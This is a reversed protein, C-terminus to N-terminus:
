HFPKGYSKEGAKVPIKLLNEKPPLPCEYGSTYACYPNYAKNFDIVLKNNIIDNKVFDLYRGGGYSTFGSTADGFPVFLYDKFNEKQMLEESQYIFLHQPSKNLYFTLLGYKYYKQKVGTSTYMYFGKNDIIRKFSATVKYKEEVPFFSIYKKDDKGVVEHNNIYNQQYAILSEKYTNKQSYMNPKFSFFLIVAFLYRISPIPKIFM